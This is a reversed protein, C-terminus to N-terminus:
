LAGYRAQRTRGTLVNEHDNTKHNLSFPVRVKQFAQRPTQSSGARRRIRQRTDFNLAAKPREGLLDRARPIAQRWQPKPVRRLHQDLIAYNRTVQRLPEKGQRRREIASRVTEIDVLFHSLASEALSRIKQGFQAGSFFFLQANRVASRLVM